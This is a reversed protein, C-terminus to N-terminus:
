YGLYDGEDALPEETVEEKVPEPTNDKETIAIEYERGSTDILFLGTDTLKYILSSGNRLLNGNKDCPQVVSLPMSNQNETSIGGGRGTGSYDCVSINTGSKYYIYGKVAAVIEDAVAFHASPFNISGGSVSCLYIKSGSLVFIKATFNPNDDTRGTNETPIYFKLSDLKPFGTDVSGVALTNGDIQQTNLNSYLDTKRSSLYLKTITTTGVTEAVTFIFRGDSVALPTYTKANDIGFNSAIVETRNEAIHYRYMTNDTHDSDRAKTYYVYEMVGTFSKDLATLPDGKKYNTVKPFVLNSVGEAVTEVGKKKGSMSVRKLTGGDNIMIYVYGDQWVVSFNDRSVNDTEATYIKTNESGDLKVRFFDLKASQLVGTRNRLNNPTSYILIDGYKADNYVWLGTAYHGAIKPVVADVNLTQKVTRDYKGEDDATYKTGNDLEYNYNDYLYDPVGSLPEGDKKGKLLNVRYIAGKQMKGGNYYDNQKYAIDAINVFGDAFYLYNDVMVAAGGNGSVSIASPVEALIEFKPKRNLLVATLIGSAAILVTIIILVVKKSLFKM